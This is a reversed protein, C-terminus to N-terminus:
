YVPLHPQMSSRVIAILIAAALDEHEGTVRKRGHAADFGIHCIWRNEIRRLSAVTKPPDQMSVLLFVSDLLANRSMLDSLKRSSQHHRLDGMLLKVADWLQHERLVRAASLRHLFGAYPEFGGSETRDHICSHFQKGPM